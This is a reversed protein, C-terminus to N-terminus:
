TEVGIDDRVQHAIKTVELLTMAPAALFQLFLGTFLM